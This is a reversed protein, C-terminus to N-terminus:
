GGGGKKRGGTFHKMEAATIWHNPDSGQMGTVINAGYMGTHFPDESPSNSNRGWKPSRQLNLQPGRMSLSTSAGQNFLVRGELAMAAGIAQWLTRNFSRGSGSSAPFITTCKDPFPCVEPYLRVGHLSELGWINYAPVVDRVAQKLIVSVQETSTLNATLM